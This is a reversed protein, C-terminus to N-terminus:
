ILIGTFCYESFTKVDSSSNSSKGRFPIWCGINKSVVIKFKAGYFVKMNGKESDKKSELLHKGKSDFTFKIM